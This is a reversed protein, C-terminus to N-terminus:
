VDRRGADASGRSRTVAIFLAAIVFQACLWWSQWVSYSLQGLVFVTVLCGTGAALSIRPLRMGALAVLCLPYLLGYLVLGVAGLDLTM